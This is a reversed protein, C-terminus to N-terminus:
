EARKTSSIFFKRQFHPARSTSTEDIILFAMAFYSHFDTDPVTRSLVAFFYEATTQYTLPVNVDARPV